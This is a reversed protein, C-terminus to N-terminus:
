LPKCNEERHITLSKELPINTSDLFSIFSIFSVTISGKLILEPKTINNTSFLFCEYNILIYKRLM